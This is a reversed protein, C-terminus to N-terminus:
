NLPKAAAAPRANKFRRHIWLWQEPHRRVWEEVRGAVKQTAEEPGDEALDMEPEIRVENVGDPGRVAYVPLVCAGTRKALPGVVSLTEVLRGFFVVPLGMPPRAYQDNMFAVSGGRRLARLVAPMSGPHFAQAVGTSARSQTIKRHLWAPKLMTTVVTPELGSLGAAAASMEWFGLHASFFIVGKGKARAREWIQRNELRSVRRAYRRFHGPIPSFFHLYEFFLIGYHEYNARLLAGRGAADLEPLCQAINDEAIRRKFLGLVLTLRGFGRGLWLEVPRPLLSAGLGLAALLLRLPASWLRIM